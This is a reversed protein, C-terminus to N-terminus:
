HDKQLKSRTFGRRQPFAQSCTWFRSQLTHVVGKRGPRAGTPLKITSHSPHDARSASALFQSCILNLNESNPLLKTEALLHDQSSNRHAGTITRMANNQVRQLDKIATSDPEMSPYWIPAGNTIVPKVLTNYMLLLTEKDGWDQGGIAKM